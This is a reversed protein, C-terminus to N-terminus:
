VTVAATAATGQRTNQLSNNWRLSNAYIKGRHKTVLRDFARTDGQQAKKVWMADEIASVEQEDKPENPERNQEAKQPRAGDVRNCDAIGGSSLGSAQDRQSVPGGGPSSDSTVPGRLLNSTMNGFINM